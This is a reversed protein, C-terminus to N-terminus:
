EKRRIKKYINMYKDCLIEWSFRDSNKICNKNLEEYKEICCLIKEVLEYPDSDSVAYGVVGDSFHNDFGQGRTYIVPVGQSMAEAYVLGFTETHSPMVFIDASRYIKILEEKPRAQMYKIKGKIKDFEFKDVIKGVVTFNISWGYKELISLATCTEEINKNKDINGVYLVRIKKHRFRELAENINKKMFKNEHWFDDIGNPIICSKRLLSRRKSKPVYYEFVQKRYSDSLFCIASANEMIKIGRGRLFPLKKFFDNVDTNRVAVIYPIGYKKSLNMACNGDTFLTYAHLCDFESVSICSELAKQIKKQKLDFLYRDKNDFCEKVCVNPNPIIISNSIDNTPVFVQNVIDLKELHEVMVQHLASTIYNRNIHLVKMFKKVRGIQFVKELRM